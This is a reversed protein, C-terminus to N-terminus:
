SLSSSSGSADGLWPASTPCSATSICTAPADSGVIRLSRAREPLLALRVSVGEPLALEKVPVHGDLGSPAAAVGFAPHERRRKNVMLWDVESSSRAHLHSM